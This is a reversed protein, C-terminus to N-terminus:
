RRGAAPRLSRRARSRRTSRSSETRVARGRRPLSVSVTRTMPALTLTGPALTGPALTSPALTSPALTGGCVVDAAGPVKAGPVKPVKAGLVKAGSVRCWCKPVQCGPVSCRPVKAGLVRASQFKDGQCSMFCFVTKAQWSHPACDAFHSPRQGSQWAQFESTSSRGAGSVAPATRQGDTCAQGGGRRCLEIGVDIGEDCLAQRGADSFEIAYKSAADDGPRQHQDAALRADPLRRQQQLGGRVERLGGPRHQVARALFRLMLDLRPALAEADFARREVDQRLGAELADEFLNRPQTGGEDDDIRDLGDERQFELRRGAADPLHPFDAVCSSKAAFPCFM